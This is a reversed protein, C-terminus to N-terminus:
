SVGIGNFVKIRWVGGQSIALIGSTPVYHMQGDAYTVAPLTDSTPIILRSVAANGGHPTFDYEGSANFNGSTSLFRPM